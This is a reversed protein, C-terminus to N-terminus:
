HLHQQQLHQQQLPFNQRQQSPIANTDIIKSTSAELFDRVWQSTLNVENSKHSIKDDNTDEDISGDSASLIAYKEKIYKENLKKRKKLVLYNCNKGSLVKRRRKRSQLNLRIWKTTTYKKLQKQVNQVYGHKNQWRTM